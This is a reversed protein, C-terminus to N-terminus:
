TTTSPGPGSTPLGLDRHLKQADATEGSVARGLDGVWASFTARTQRPLEELVTVEKGVAVSTEHADSAMSAPWPLRDLQFEYHKADPVIPAFAAAAQSITLSPGIEAITQESGAIADDIAKEDAKFQEVLSITTAKSSTSKTANRPSQSCGTFLFASTVIIGISTTITRWEVECGKTPAIQQHQLQRLSM